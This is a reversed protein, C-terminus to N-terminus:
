KGLLLIDNVVVETIYRKVGDKDYNIFLGDLIGNEYNSETTLVSNEYMEFPGHLVGNLMSIRQELQGNKDKIETVIAQDSM